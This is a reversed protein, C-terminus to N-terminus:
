HTKKEKKSGKSFLMKLDSCIAKRFLIRTRHLGYKTETTHPMTHIKLPLVAVSYIIIEM